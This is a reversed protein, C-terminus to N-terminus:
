KSPKRGALAKAPALTVVHGAFLADFGQFPFRTLADENEVAGHAGHDLAVLQVFGAIAALPELVPVAVHAAVVVQEIEARGLAHALNVGRIEAGAGVDNRGVRKGRRCDRLSIVAHLADGVLEVLGPRRERALGRRLRFLFIAM